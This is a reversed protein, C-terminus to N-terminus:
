SKSQKRSNLAPAKIGDASLRSVLLTVAAVFPAVGKPFTLDLIADFLALQDVMPLSAAKAEAADDGPFGCGDALISSVVGPAKELLGEFTFLKPDAKGGSILARIEPFKSAMAALGAATVGGVSLSDGTSLLVSKKLPVVDMLSVM